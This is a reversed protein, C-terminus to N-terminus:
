LPIELGAKFHHRSHKIPKSLGSQIFQCRPLV